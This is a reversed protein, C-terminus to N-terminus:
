PRNEPGPPMIKMQYKEQFSEPIYWTPKLRKETVYFTGLPSFWGLDGIGIPYSRVLGITKLLYFLRMEAVNIVIGFKKTPPLVWQTPIILNKGEPPVWPDIEPYLVEIENFGLDYTRAVDLLTDKKKITYEGPIGIVTNAQPNFGLNTNPFRYPYAGSGWAPGQSYYSVM